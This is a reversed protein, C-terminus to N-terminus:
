FCEYVANDQLVAQLRLFDIVVKIWSALSWSVGNKLNSRGDVELVGKEWFQISDLLLELWPFESCLHVVNMMDM